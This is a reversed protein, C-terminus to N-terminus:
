PGVSPAFLRDLIAQSKRAMTEPPLPMDKRMWAFLLGTLAAAAAEIDLDQSRAESGTRKGKGGHLELIGQRFIGFLYDLIMQGGKGHVVKGAFSKNESVHRYLELFHFGPKAGRGKGAGADKGSTFVRIFHDHGWLMLQEKSEYHSYFTSRGVKAKETIDRISVAEYGKELVLAVFADSLLKRTKQVRRDTGAGSDGPRPSKRSLARPKDMM